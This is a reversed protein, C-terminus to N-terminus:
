EGNRKKVQQIYASYMIAYLEQYSISSGTLEGTEPDMIDIMGMFDEAAKFELDISGAPERIVKEGIVIAEEEMFRLMMTGSLPNEFVLRKARTWSEGNVTKQNFTSAM